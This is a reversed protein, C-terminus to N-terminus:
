KRWRSSSGRSCNGDGGGVILPHPARGAFVIALRDVKGMNEFGGARLYSIRDSLVFPQILGFEDAPFSPRSIEACIVPLFLPYSSGGSGM